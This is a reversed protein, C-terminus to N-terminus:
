CDGWHQGRFLALIKRTSCLDNEVKSPPIDAMGKEVGREKLRDTSHHEPKDTSLFNRLGRLVHVIVPALLSLSALDHHQAMYAACLFASAFRGCKGAEFTGTSWGDAGQLKWHM